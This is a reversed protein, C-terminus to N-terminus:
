GNLPLRTYRAPDAQVTNLLEQQARSAWQPHVIIHGVYSFVPVRVQIRDGQWQVEDKIYEPAWRYTGTENRKAKLRLMTAVEQIRGLVNQLRGRSTAVIAIADVYVFVQVNDFDERLTRHFAEYYLM